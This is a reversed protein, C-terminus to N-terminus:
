RSPQVALGYDLVNDADVKAKLSALEAFAELNFAQATRDRREDGELFNLYAAGTVHPRLAARLEAQAAAIPEALEPAMVASVIALLFEDQRGKSSISGRANRAVQGGAHRIEAYLIAPPGSVPFVASVLTDIVEDSIRNFWETTVRAPMPDVPDMSIAAVEGFPMRGWMDIAPTRWQRWYDLLAVGDATRGTYAGRVLVFSQGRLEPPVMDLPPFNMLVVSSTLEDPAAAAWTRYRAMVEAADAAPYFLNGGYVESVPVLDIEMGTVVVLEGPGGGRLAWFLDAHETASVQWVYGDATVVEFRNVHDASLGYMRALWGMGGGLTYGVAGIEPTSGLLPALGISQARVLVTKWLTGASVWATRAVPDIRVEDLRATVILMAGNAMRGLGHGTAQVAIGLGERRAFRVAEVVDQPTEPIVVVAPHQDFALNWAARAEDYGADSPLFVSGQLRSRLNAVSYGFATKAANELVTTSAAPDTPTDSYHGPRPTVLTM